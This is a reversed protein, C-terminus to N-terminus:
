QKTVHLFPKNESNKGFRITIAGDSNTCLCKRTESAGDKFVKWGRSKQSYRDNASTDCRAGDSVVTLRPNVHNIFDINFGSERGHHPALLVDADKIAPIFDKRALLEDFSAKENDGPIIIKTEAYEVVTIISFNNFNDHSCSVPTFQKFKVGGWSESTYLDNISGSPIATNYRSNIECYKEFKEQDKEQVGDMIEHDLLVKPRSLVKPSLEDLNLIDDFHDLHPHTITVYDLQTVSYNNRLHTLPSFSSNKSSYDGTGLDIALHRGNPTRIYTAHGHQVDWFVVTVAQDMM